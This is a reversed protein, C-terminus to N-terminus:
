KKEERKQETPNGAKGQEPQDEVKNQELRDVIISTIKIFLWLLGM